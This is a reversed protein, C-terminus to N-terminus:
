EQMCHQIFIMSLNLMTRANKETAYEDKPHGDGTAKRERALISDINKFITQTFIDNPIFDKNQAELILPSLKKGGTKGEVLVQMFAELASITKTVSGSYGQQTNKRYDAFSDSLIENVKKWKPDSLYKIVPEYIEKTIKEDQRPVFGDRTLHYKFGFQMFVENLCEAFEDFVEWKWAFTRKKFKNDSEKESRSPEREYREFIISKSYLSLLELVVNESQTSFIEYFDQCASNFTSDELFRRAYSRAKNESNLFRVSNTVRDLKNEKEYYEGFFKHGCSKNGYSFNGSIEKEFFHWELYKWINYKDDNSLDEWNRFDLDLSLENKAEINKESWLKFM